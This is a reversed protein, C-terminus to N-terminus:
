KMRRYVSRNRFSDPKQSSGGANSQKFRMQMAKLSNRFNKLISLHKQKPRNAKPSSMAAGRYPMSGFSRGLM